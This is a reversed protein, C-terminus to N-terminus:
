IVFTAFHQYSNLSVSLVQCFITNNSIDLIKEEMQIIGKMM